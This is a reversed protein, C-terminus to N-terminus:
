APVQVDAAVLNALTTIADDEFEEPLPYNGSFDFSYNALVTIASMETLSGSGRKKTLLYNNLVACYGFNTDLPQYLSSPERKFVLPYKRESDESDFFVGWPLGGVLLNSLAAGAMQVQGNTLAVDNWATRMRGRRHPDSAVDMSFRQSAQPILLAVRDVFIRSEQETRGKRAQRAAREAFQQVTIAM